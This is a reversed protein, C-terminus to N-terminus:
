STSQRRRWSRISLWCPGSSRTIVCLASPLPSTLDDTLHHRREAVMDNIYADLQDRAAMIVPEDNTVNWNFIKFIDEAWDSLLEWDCRPAGLL